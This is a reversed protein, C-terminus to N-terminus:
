KVGVIIAVVAMGVLVITPVAWALLKMSGRLESVDAALAQLTKIVGGLTIGETQALEQIDTPGIGEQGQRAGAYPNEVPGSLRFFQATLFPAKYPLAVANPALNVVRVVLVGEFGPDVQPGSLMLLGRRAYESRLGLQAAAQPSFKVRERTELVAFEGPEVVLVGRRSVDVKEKSSSAFGM